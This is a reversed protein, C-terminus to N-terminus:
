SSATQEDTRRRMLFTSKCTIVTDGKQNVVRYDLRARGREPKSGVVHEDVIAEVHVTDGILVPAPLRVEGLGLWALVSNGSVGSQVV